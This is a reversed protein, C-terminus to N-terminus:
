FLKKKNASKQTNVQKSDDIGINYISEHQLTKLYFRRSIFECM